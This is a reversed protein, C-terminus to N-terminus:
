IFIITLLYCVLMSFIMHVFKTLIFTQTKIKASKLFAMSQFIISLGSFSIIGSSLVLAITSHYASLTRAGRTVEMIGYVFGQIYKTDIKMSKFVPLLVKSILDFIRLSCFLETLLYFITIFAGVTFLSNITEIVCTNVINDKKLFHLIESNQNFKQKNKDLFNSIIGMLLSSLIHSVYIIVGFLYNGFMITGVTGIVFIPGSTTCFVCMKKADKESILKKSYLDAIIKAGIPYGSLISMLFAYISVGPTGFLKYSIKDLKGCFKYLTGLETLLKTLLMFPFLGPLVSFFFLKLGSVTGETYKKPSLIILAMIGFILITLIIDAILDLDSKSIKKFHNACQGNKTTNM